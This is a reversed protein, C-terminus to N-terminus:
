QPCLSTPYRPYDGGVVVFVMDCDVELTVEAYFINSSQSDPRLLGGNVLVPGATPNNGLLATADAYGQGETYNGWNLPRDGRFGGWWDPDNTTSRVYELVFQTYLQEGGAKSFELIDQPQMPYVNAREYIAQIGGLFVNMGYMTCAIDNNPIISDDIGTRCLEAFQRIVAEVSITELSTLVGNTRFQNRGVGTFEFKFVLAIVDGMTMVRGVNTEFHRYLSEYVQYACADRSQQQSQAVVDAPVGNAIGQTGAFVDCYGFPRYDDPNPAAALELTTVTENFANQAMGPTVRYQPMNSVDDIREDLGYTINQPTLDCGGPTGDLIVSIDAVWAYSRDYYILYFDGTFTPFLYDDDTTTRYGYLPTLTRPYQDPPFIYYDNDYERGYFQGLM